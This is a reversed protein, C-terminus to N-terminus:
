DPNYFKRNKSYDDLIDSEAVPNIKGNDLEVLYLNYGNMNIYRVEQKVIKGRGTSYDANMFTVKDGIKYRHPLKPETRGGDSYKIKKAISALKKSLQSTDGEVDNIIVKLADVKSMGSDVMRKYQRYEFEDLDNYVNVKELKEEITGGKAYNDHKNDWYEKETVKKIHGNELLWELNDKQENNNTVITGDNKTYETIVKNGEIDKVRFRKIGDMGKLVHFYSGKRIIGGKAMMGGDAKMRKRQYFESTPNLASYTGLRGGYTSFKGYASKGSKLYDFASDSLMKKLKYETYESISVQGYRDKNNPDSYIKNIAEFIEDEIIKGGTMGGNAYLDDRDFSVVDKTEKGDMMFSKNAVFTIHWIGKDDTKEELVSYEPNNKYEKIKKLGSATRYVKHTGTTVPFGKDNLTGFSVHYIADALAYVPKDGKMEVFRKVAGGKAMKGWDQQLSYYIAKMVQESFKASKPVKKKFDEKFQEFTGSADVNRDVAYNYGVNLQMKDVEGGNAMKKDTSYVTSYSTGFGKIYFSFHIAGKVFRENKQANKLVEMAAKYSPDREKDADSYNTIFTEKIYPYKAEVIYKYRGEEAKPNTYEEPVKLGSSIGERLTGDRNFDSFEFNTNNSKNYSKLLRIAEDRYSDAKDLLRISKANEDNSAAVDSQFRTEYYSQVFSSVKKLEDAVSGGNAMRVPERRKMYEEIALESEYSNLSDGIRNLEDALEHDAEGKEDIQRNVEDQLEIFKKVNAPLKGGRGYQKISGGILFGGLATLIYPIM